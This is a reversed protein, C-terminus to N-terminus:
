PPAPANTVSVQLTRSFYDPNGLAAGTTVATSTIACVSVPTPGESYPNGAAPARTVTVTFSGVVFDPSAGAPCNFGGGAPVTQAIGWELGAQAAHYSRAGQSAGLSTWRAVEGITVMFAGILALVVLLFIASVLSFGRSRRRLNPQALKV